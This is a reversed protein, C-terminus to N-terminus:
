LIKESVIYIANDIEEVLQKLCDWCISITKM